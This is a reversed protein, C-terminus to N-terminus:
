RSRYLARIEYNILETAGAELYLIFSWINKLTRGNFCYNVKIRSYAVWLNHNLLKFPLKNKEFVTGLLTIRYVLKIRESVFNLLVKENRNSFPYLKILTCRRLFSLFVCASIIIVNQWSWEQLSFEWTRNSYIFLYYKSKRQLLRNKQGDNHIKNDAPALGPVSFNPTGPRTTSLPNAPLPHRTGHPSYGGPPPTGM